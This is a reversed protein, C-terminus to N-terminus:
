SAVYLIPLAVKLVLDTATHAIMAAFIGRRWYLWGCALGVVGNAALIFTVLSWTLTAISSAQPLHAAGFLLAAVLNASWIIPSTSAPRQSLKTLVSAVITMAGLRLWIEEYIGAGLSALATAWRTPERLERMPWRDGLLALAIGIFLAVAAGLLTATIVADRIKQPSSAEGDWGDIPPWDLNVRRGIRLSFRILLYSLAVDVAAGLAQDFLSAPPIAAFPSGIQRVFPILAFHAIAVLATLVLAYAHREQEPRSTTATL